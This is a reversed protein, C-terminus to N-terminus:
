LNQRYYLYCIGLFIIPTMKDRPLAQIFANIGICETSKSDIIPLKGIGHTGIPHRYINVNM